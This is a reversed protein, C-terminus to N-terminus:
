INAVSVYKRSRVVKTRDQLTTEMSTRSTSLPKLKHAKVNMQDMRGGKKEISGSQRAVHVEM